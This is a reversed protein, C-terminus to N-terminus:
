YNGTSQSKDDEEEEEDSYFKDSKKKQPGKANGASISSARSEVPIEVNRVTPDPAQTPFDPLDAYGSVRASIAHSLTALQFQDSDSLDLNLYLDLDSSRGSAHAFSRM